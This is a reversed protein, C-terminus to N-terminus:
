SYPHYPFTFSVVLHIPHAYVPRDFHFSTNPYDFDPDPDSDFDFLYHLLAIWIGIGIFGFENQDGDISFGFATVRVGDDGL